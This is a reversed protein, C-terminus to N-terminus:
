RHGGQILSLDVVQWGTVERRVVERAGWRSTVYRHDDVIQDLTSRVPGAPLEGPKRLLYEFAGPDYSGGRYTSAWTYEPDDWAAAPVEYTTLGGRHSSRWWAQHFFTAEIRSALAENGSWGHTVFRVLIVPKEGIESFGQEYLAPGAWGLRNWEDVFEHPTGTFADFAVWEEDTIDDIM